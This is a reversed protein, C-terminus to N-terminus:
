VAAIPIQCLDNFVLPYLWPGIPASRRGSGSRHASLCIWRTSSGFGERISQPNM